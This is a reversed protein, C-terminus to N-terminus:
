FNNEFVSQFTEENWCDRSLLLFYKEELRKPTLFNNPQMEHRPIRKLTVYKGIGPKKRHLLNTQLRFVPLQSFKVFFFLSTMKQEGSREQRRYCFYFSERNKESEFIAADLHYTISPYEM